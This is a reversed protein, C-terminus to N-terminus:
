GPPPSPPPIRQSDDVSYINWSHTRCRVSDYYIRTTIVGGPPRTAIRHAFTVDLRRRCWEVDPARRDDDLGVDAVRVPAADRKGDLRM